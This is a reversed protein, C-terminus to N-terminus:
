CRWTDMAHLLQVPSSTGAIARSGHGSSCLWTAEQQRREAGRSSVWTFEQQRGQIHTSAAQLSARSACGSCCKWSAEEPQAAASASVGSGMLSTLGQSCSNCIGLKPLM